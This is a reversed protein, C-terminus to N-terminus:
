TNRSVLFACEGWEDAGNIQNFPPHDINQHINQLEDWDADPFPLRTQTMEASLGTGQTPLIIMIMLLVTTLLWYIRKM